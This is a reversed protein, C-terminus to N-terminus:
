KSVGHGPIGRQNLITDMRCLSNELLALLYPCLIHADLREMM